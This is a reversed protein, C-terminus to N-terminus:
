LKLEETHECGVFSIQFYGKKEMLLCPIPFSITSKDATITGTDNNKYAEGLKAKLEWSSGTEKTGQGM